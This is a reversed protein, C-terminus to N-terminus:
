RGQPWPQYVPKRHNEDTCTSINAYIPTKSFTWAFETWPLINKGLCHPSAKQGQSFSFTPHISPGQLMVNGAGTDAPTGRAHGSKRQFFSQVIRKRLHIHVYRTAPANQAAQSNNAAAPSTGNPTKRHPLHLIHYVQMINQVQLVHLADHDTQMAAHCTCSKLHWHEHSAWYNPSRMRECFGTECKTCTLNSENCRLVWISIERM